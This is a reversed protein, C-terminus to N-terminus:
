RYRELLITDAGERASALAASLGSPGGGVVLVDTEAMIPIKKLPEEIYDV